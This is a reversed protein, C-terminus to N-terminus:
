GNDNESASEAELQTKFDRPKEHYGGAILTRHLQRLMAFDLNESWGHFGLATAWAEIRDNM